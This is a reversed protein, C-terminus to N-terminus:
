LGSPPFDVVHCFTLDVTYLPITSEEERYAELVQAHNYTLTSQISKRSGLPDFGFNVATLPAGFTGRITDEWVAM